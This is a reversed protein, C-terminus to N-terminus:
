HNARVAPIPCFYCAIGATILSHKPAVVAIISGGGLRDIGKCYILVARLTFVPKFDVNRQDLVFSSKNATFTRM